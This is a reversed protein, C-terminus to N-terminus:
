IGLSAILDETDQARERLVTDSSSHVLADSERESYPRSNNISVHINYILKGIENVQQAVRDTFQLSFEARTLTDAIQNLEKQLRTDSTSGSIKKLGVRMDDFTNVIENGHTALERKVLEIKRILDFADMQATLQDLLHQQQHCDITAAVRKREAHHRIRAQLEASAYPELIFDDAGLGFVDLLVDTDDIDMILIIPLDHFQPHQRIQECRAWIATSDAAHDLLLVDPASRKLTQISLSSPADFLDFDGTQLAQGVYSSRAPDASVILVRYNRDM